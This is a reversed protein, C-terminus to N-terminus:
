ISNFEIIFEHYGALCMAAFNKANVVPNLNTRKITAVKSLASFLKYSEIINRIRWIELSVRTIGPFVRKHPRHFGPHVALLMKVKHTHLSQLTTHDRLIGWEAGEIDMKIVIQVGSKYLSKLEDSVASIQIKTEREDRNGSFVISSLVSSNSGKSFETEGNKAALAKNSVKIKKSIKPNLNVNRSLVRNMLPDPEYSFVEAGLSAAILTMAGNAAGVDMFITEQDCNRRLFDLTDPEYESKSIREWFNQGYFDESLDVTFDKGDYVFSFLV